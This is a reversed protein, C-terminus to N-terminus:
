RAFLSLSRVVTKSFCGARFRIENPSPNLNNLLYLYEHQDPAVFKNDSQWTLFKGAKGLKDTLLSNGWDKM